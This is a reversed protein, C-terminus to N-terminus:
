ESDESCPEDEGLAERLRKPEQLDPTYRLLVFGAVLVLVGALWVAGIVALVDILVRM